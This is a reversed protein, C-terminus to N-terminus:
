QFKTQITLALFLVPPATSRPDRVTHVAILNRGQDLFADVRFSSIKPWEEAEGIWRDNLYVNTRGGCVVSLKATAPRADIHFLKRFFVDGRQSKVSPHWIPKADTDAVLQRVEPAMGAQRHLLVECPEWDREDPLSRDSKWGEIQRRSAIWSADSIIVVPHPFVRDGREMQLSSTIATVRARSMKRGVKEVTIEGIKVPEDMDPVGTRFVDLKTDRSIGDSKCFDIMVETRRAFAYLIYGKSATPIEQGPAMGGCGGLVAVYVCSVLCLLLLSILQYASLSILRYAWSGILGYAWGSDQTKKM